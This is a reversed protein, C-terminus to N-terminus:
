RDGAAHRRMHSRLLASCGTIYRSRSSASQRSARQSPARTGLYPHTGMGRCRVRSGTQATSLCVLELSGGWTASKSLRQHLQSAFQRTRGETPLGAQPPWRFPIPSAVSSYAKVPTADRCTSYRLTRSAARSRARMASLPRAAEPRACLSPLRAPSVEGPGAVVHMALPLSGASRTRLPLNATM